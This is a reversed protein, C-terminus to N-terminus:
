FKESNIKPILWAQSNTEKATAWLLSEVKFNGPISFQHYPTDSEQFYVGKTLYTIACIKWVHGVHITEKM